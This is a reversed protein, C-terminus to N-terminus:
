YDAGFAAEIRAQAEAYEIGHYFDRVLPHESGQHLQLLPRRNDSQTVVNCHLGFTDSEYPPLRNCIRGFYVVNEPNDHFDSQYDNFSKESVSVWVGYELTEEHGIIPILLVARIFRDTQDPYRIICFDSDCEAQYAIREEESLQSYPDPTAFCLAPMDEHKEGCSTCTYM